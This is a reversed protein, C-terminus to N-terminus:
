GSRRLDMEAVAAIDEIDVSATGAKRVVAGGAWNGIRAADAADLGAVLAATAASLVTDGAGVTDYVEVPVADLHVAVGRDAVINLGGGGCTVVLAGLGLSSRLTEARGLLDEMSASPGCGAETMEHLNMTVFDAGRMLPLNTPKCNATVLSGRRRLDRVREASLVGAVVGKRYDSVVTANSGDDLAEALGNWIASCVDAGLPDKSEHDVRVVQQSHAVIRTKLTTPRRADTVLRGVGVGLSALMERLREGARDDGVVGLLEVSLGLARLNAAVNAAGGPVYRRRELDAELVPVPAEPSIRTVTGYIYEDLMLDGVVTVKRGSAAVLLALLESVTM